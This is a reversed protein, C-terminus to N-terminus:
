RGLQAFSLLQGRRGKYVGNPNTYVAYATGNGGDRVIEQERLLARAERHPPARRAKALLPREPQVMAVVGIGGSAAVAPAAVAPARFAACRMEADRRNAKFYASSM